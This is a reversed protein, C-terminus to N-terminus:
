NDQIKPLDQRVIEQGPAYTGDPAPMVASIIFPAAVERDKDPLATVHLKIGFRTGAPLVVSSFLLTFGDSNNQWHVADAKEPKQPSSKLWLDTGDLQVALLSSKVDAPLKIAFGNQLTGGPIFAAQLESENAGKKQGNIQLQGNQGYVINISLILIFVAALKKIM